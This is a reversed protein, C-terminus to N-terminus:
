ARRVRKLRRALGLLADDNHDEAQILEAFIQEEDDMAEDFFDDGDGSDKGDAGEEPELAGDIDPLKVPQIVLLAQQLKMMADLVVEPVQTQGPFASSELQQLLAGAQEALNGVPGAAPLNSASGAALTSELAALQQELDALRCKAEEVNAEAKGLRERAQVVTAEARDVQTAQRKVSALLSDLRSGPSRSELVARRAEEEHQVLQAVSEAPAGARRATEAARRLANAHAAPHSATRSPGPLPPWESLSNARAPPPFSAKRRGRAADCRRCVHRDEFNTCGCECRWEPKSRQAPLRSSAGGSLLARRVAEAVLAQM